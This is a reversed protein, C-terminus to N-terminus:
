LFACCDSLVYSPISGVLIAMPHNRAIGELRVFFFRFFGHGRRVILPQQNQFRVFKNQAFALVQFDCLKLGAFTEEKLTDM